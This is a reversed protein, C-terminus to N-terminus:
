MSQPWLIEGKLVHWHKPWHIEANLVNHIEAELFNYIKIALCNCSMIIKHGSYRLKWSMIGNIALVNWSERIIGNSVLTIRSEPWSVTQSRLIVAEMLHHQKNGLYKLKWLMNSNTTLTNWSDHYSIQQRLIPIHQKGTCPATQQWLIEAELVHPHKQDIYKLKWSM